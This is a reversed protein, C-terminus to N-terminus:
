EPVIEEPWIREGFVADVIRGVSYPYYGDPQGKSWMARPIVLEFQDDASYQIGPSPPNRLPGEASLRYQPRSNLEDTLDIREGNVIEYVSAYEVSLFTTSFSSEAETDPRLKPDEEGPVDFLRSTVTGVLVTVTDDVARVAIRDGEEVAELRDFGVARDEDVIDSETM